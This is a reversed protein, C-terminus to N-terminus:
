STLGMNANADSPRNPPELRRLIIWGCGVALVTLVGGLQMIRFAHLTFSGKDPDYQHCWFIFQDMITGVKGDAAEILAMRLDQPPFVLDIMYRSLRGDPTCIMIASGHVYEDDEPGPGNEIFRYGFGAAKALLDPNPAHGTLFHWAQDGEHRKFKGLYGDRKRAALDPGENPNISVTVIRYEKGAIWPIDSLGDVMANLTLTCLQPCTYYNLTLIVPHTGDFYDGLRVAAGTEDVLELDLPLTEDVRQVIDLGAREPPPADAAFQATAPAAALALMAVSALRRAFRALIAPPTRNM